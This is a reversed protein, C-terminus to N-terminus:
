PGASITVTLAATYTGARARAPVTLEVDIQQTYTGVGFGPLAQVVKRPVDLPGAAGGAAAPGGTPDVAQGSVRVPQAVGTVSLNAAPIDTGGYLGSYALPGSQLTVNWGLDATETATLTLTGASTRAASHSYAVAPLSLDSVSATGAAAPGAAGVIGLLTLAALTRRWTRARM